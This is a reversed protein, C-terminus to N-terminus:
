RIFFETAQSAAIGGPALPDECYMQYYLGNTAFVPNNPLGVYWTEHGPEGPAGDLTFFLYTLVNLNWPLGNLVIGPEISDFAIAMVATAGPQGGVLGLKFAANGPYSPVWDVLFPEISGSLSAGFVRPPAEVMSRLDPHDFPAQRDRAREDVLATRVFELMLAVENQTVGAANLNPLNSQTNGQTTAQGGGLWHANLTSRGDWFQSPHGLRESEGTHFLRPRLGANRLSPTKFAGNGNGPDEAVPRLGVAHFQDDTFLPTQHCNLCQGTTRFLDWGLVELPTMATPDGAIFRDWPTDDPDLTRQYSALAFAIRAATIQPDGFAQAFLAPYNGYQQLAAQIDPTLNRALRMPVIANLKARVDQWTRGEFGMEVPDLIPRLAQAELAGGSPIRRVGTEPDVFTGGISGDWNLTAHHGAGLVSPATRQTAQPRLGFQSSLTFDGNNAQRVLSHSGRTDDATGLVGDLGPHFGITERGDAGGHEPQHCTGCAMSDDGSLQEEWFLMKGLLVKEPTVPNQAPAKDVQGVAAATLTLTALLTRM